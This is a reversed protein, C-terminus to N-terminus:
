SKRWFGIGSIALARDDAKDPNPKPAAPMANYSPAVFSSSVNRIKGMLEDVERPDRITWGYKAFVRRVGDFDRIAQAAHEDIRSGRAHVELAVPDILDEEVAQYWMGYAPVLGDLRFTALIADCMEFRTM